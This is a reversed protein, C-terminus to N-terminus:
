PTTIVYTLREQFRRAVGFRVFEGGYAGEFWRIARCLAGYVGRPLSLADDFVGTFSRLPARALCLM